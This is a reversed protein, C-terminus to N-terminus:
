PYVLHVLGFYPDVNPRHGPQDGDDEKKCTIDSIGILAVRESRM